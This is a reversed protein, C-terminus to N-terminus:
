DVEEFKGSALELIYNQKFNERDVKGVLKGKSLVIIRDSMGLLEEMDSSIMVIAMGQDALDCMLEYIEQKAGVDIGRTPEDFLIVESNVALTKALVVKQQNGGSLHKVLKKLSPTKIDLMNKYKEATQKEKRTDVVLNKSINKLNSFSINWQVNRNLFCGQRKRDEPIFGIGHNIAKEPTDINVQEGKLFVKGKDKPEAGYILQATETRGAGVLGSLGVIEGKKVEFSINQLGIGSLNEVKLIVEGPSNNRQPFTEKLERGIMLHILEKRSTYKTKKTDIYNGDRMVTVRDSIEFVEDIIHSIFIITVGNKKLERIIEFLYNVESVSLSATPEDMILIRANKSVAKAVEVIQQQATPLERVLTTPDIDIKFQEFIEKAKDEMLKYNVLKGYKDGLFINEAASLAEVLNFEQYIVEVGEKKALSPNLKKYKKQENFIITGNDPTIAGSITKILTSKGAGNEGLLAHIEGKKLDFSFSNLAKVGPYTKTINKLSLVSDQM